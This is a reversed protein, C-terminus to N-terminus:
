GSLGGDGPSQAIGFKPGAHAAAYSFALAITLLNKTDGARSGNLYERMHATIM